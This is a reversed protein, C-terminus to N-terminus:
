TLLIRHDKEDYRISVGNWEREIYLTDRAFNIVVGVHVNQFKGRCNALTSTDHNETAIDQLISAPDMGQADVFNEGGGCPPMGMNLTTTRGSHPSGISKSEIYSHISVTGGMIVGKGSTVMLPGDCFVESSLIYDTQVSQAAYVICNEMFKARVNGRSRITGEGDGLVGGAIIVDGDADIIASELLGDVIVSGTARVIFKDRVNGKIHVDGMFNINGTSYDVDGPVQMTSRVVFLGQEYVVDGDIDALLETGDESIHTNKGPTIKAPEGPKAPVEEARLNLGPTGETPLHIECITGDQFVPQFYNQARYDLNGDADATFVCIREKVYFETVRGQEGPIPATGQVVPFLRFYQHNTVMSELREENIGHVIKEDAILGRIEEMTIHAGNGLPAILLIWGAMADTSVTFRATADVSPPPLVKPPRGENEAMGAELSVDEAHKKKAEHVLKSYDSVASDVWQKLRKEELKKRLEDLPLPHAGCEFILDPTPMYTSFNEDWLRHLGGGLNLGLTIDLVPSLEEEEEEPPFGLPNSPDIGAEQGSESSTEPAVAGTTEEHVESEEGSKKSFMKGFLGGKKETAM